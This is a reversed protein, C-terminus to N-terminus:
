VKINVKDLAMKVVEQWGEPSSKKSVLCNKINIKDKKFKDNFVLCPINSAKLMDLDNYNDGVAITLLKDKNIKRIIKVVKKMALAKSVRDCLNIVRGGEHLSLGIKKVSKNLLKKESNNGDFVFPISYERSLALQLKKGKLGLIKSKKKLSMRNIFHCKNKLNVPMREKFIKIIENKERSLIIQNPFNPNILDLNNVISGNEGIIALNKKLEINFLELEKITKSSNPILIIGFNILKHIYSRISEFQFTERHLLSGDLDTFIILNIKKEM